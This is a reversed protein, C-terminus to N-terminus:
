GSEPSSARRRTSDGMDGGGRVYALAAAFDGEILRQLEEDSFAYREMACLAGMGNLYIWCHYFLANAQALSLGYEDQMFGVYHHTPVATDALLTELSERWGDESLFVFRYLNPMDIAFRVMQAGAQAFNHSQEMAWRAREEFRASAVLRAERRLEDMDDFVTFIPRTSCGLRHALERATLADAGREVVLAIAADVIEKRTFKPRPPM